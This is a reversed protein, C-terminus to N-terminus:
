VAGIATGPEAEGILAVEDNGDLAIRMQDVAVVHDLEIRLAMRLIDRRGLTEGVPEDRGGALVRDAGVALVVRLEEM